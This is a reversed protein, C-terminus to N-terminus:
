AQLLIDAQTIHDLRIRREGGNPGKAYLFEAHDETRLDRPMVTEAHENGADDKWKMRISQHHLIAVEYESYSDCSIPRYLVKDTM